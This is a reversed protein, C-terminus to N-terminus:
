RCWRKDEFLASDGSAGRVDIVQQVRKDELFIVMDINKCIFKLGNSYTFGPNQAYLSFLLSMKGLADVASDAHITSMSGRHGTNLSLILPIIESSRVEGLIIRDPRLRLALSYYDKLSKNPRQEEGVFFTYGPSLRPIERTDELVVVHHHSPIMNLLGTLFSTKGSGAKGAVIINKQQEVAQKLFLKNDGTITFDEMAYAKESIRRLFLKGPGGVGTCPHVLTARFSRGKISTFFSGHPKSYNWSINNRHALIEFAYQLTRNSVSIGQEHSLIGGREIQLYDSNHVIIETISEDLLYLNLFDLEFIDKFTKLKEDSLERGESVLLQKFQREDPRSVKNLLFLISEFIEKEM